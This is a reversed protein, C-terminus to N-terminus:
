GQEDSEWGEKMMEAHWQEPTVPTDDLEDWTLFEPIKNM